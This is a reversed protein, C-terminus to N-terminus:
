VFRLERVTGRQSAGINEGAEDGQASYISIPEDIFCQVM